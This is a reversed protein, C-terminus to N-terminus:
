SAGVSGHVIRMDGIPLVFSGKLMKQGKIAKKSLLLFLSFFM